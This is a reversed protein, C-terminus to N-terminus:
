DRLGFFHHEVPMLLDFGGIRGPARTSSQKYIECGLNGSPRPDHGIGIQHNYDGQTSVIKGAACRVSHSTSCHGVETTTRTIVHGSAALGSRRHLQGSRGRTKVPTRWKRAQSAPRGASWSGLGGMNPFDPCCHILHRSRHATGRSDFLRQIALEKQMSVDM